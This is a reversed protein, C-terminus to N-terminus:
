GERRRAWVFNLLARRKLLALKSERLQEETVSINMYEITNKSKWPAELREGGTMREVHRRRIWWAHLDAAQLPLVSKDDCFHPVTSLIQRLTPSGVIANHQAFHWATLIRKEENMQTDFHLEIIDSPSFCKNILIALHPVLSCFACYVPHSAFKDNPEFVRKIADPPVMISFGATVCEEIVSHFLNIRDDRIHKPLTGRVESMKLYPIRPPMDLIAQWRTTFASWRDIPALYGALVFIPPNTTQSDDIFAQLM